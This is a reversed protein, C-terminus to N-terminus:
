YIALWSLCLKGIYIIIIIKSARSRVPRVSLEFSEVGLQVCCCCCCGQPPCFLWGFRLLVFNARRTSARLVPTKQREWIPRIILSSRNISNTRLHYLTLRPQQDRRSVKAELRDNDHKLHNREQELRDCKARLM